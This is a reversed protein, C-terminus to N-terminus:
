QGARASRAAAAHHPDPKGREPPQRVAAAADRRDPDHIGSDAGNGTRGRIRARGQAPVVPRVRLRESPAPAPGRHEHGRRVDAPKGLRASRRAPARKGIGHEPNGRVTPLERRRPLPPRTLHYLRPEHDGDGSRHPHRCLGGGRRSPMRATRRAPLHDVAAQAAPRWAAGSAGPHFRPRPGRRDPDPPIVSQIDAAESSNYLNTIWNEMSRSLRTKVEEHSLFQAAEKHALMVGYVHSALDTRHREATQAVRERVDAPFSDLRERWECTLDDTTLQTALMAPVECPRVAM